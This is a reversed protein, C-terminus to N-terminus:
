WIRYDGLHLVVGCTCTKEREDVRHWYWWGHTTLLTAAPLPAHSCSSVSFPLLVGHGGGHGAPSLLLWRADPQNEVIEADQKGSSSCHSPWRTHLEAPPM